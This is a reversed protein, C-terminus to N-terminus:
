TQREWYERAHQKRMASMKEAYVRKEEEFVPDRQWRYVTKYGFTSQM